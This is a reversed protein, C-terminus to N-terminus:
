PLHRLAIGDDEDWAALMGGGPLAMLTPFAAKTSLVERKGSIWSELQTGAVWVAYTQGKAVALAVDKGEGLRTESQGPEAMFIETGRRWATITREGDRAIGGGDMPCANLKWSGTGLKEAKGFGRSSNGSTLYMDRDGSISNRWMVYVAGDKGYTASPHCCECITGGPSEYIEVNPSWTAGADSSFAGYLHTGKKRLDLWAAFVNGKGDAALTHLGERSSSPVENIRIPQSWTKGSDTSRWSFLDGDSPLGHAHPGTAITKGTVATVVIAGSTIAIRPGRHRSLPLVSTEFVKIPKSFSQGQDKSTAVYVSNGAGFAVAVMGPASALQPARYRLDPTPSKFHVDASAAALAVFVFFLITTRTLM